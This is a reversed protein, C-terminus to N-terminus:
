DKSLTLLSPPSPNSRMAPWAPRLGFMGQAWPTIPTFVMARMIGGKEEAPIKHKKLNPFTSDELGRTHFTPFIPFNIRVNFAGSPSAHKTVFRTLLACTRVHRRHMIKQHRM